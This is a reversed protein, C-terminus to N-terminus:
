FDESDDDDIGDQYQNMLDVSHNWVTMLDEPTMGEPIEVDDAVWSCMTYVADTLTIKEPEDKSHIFMNNVFCVIDPTFSTSIM